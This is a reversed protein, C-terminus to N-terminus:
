TAEPAEAEPPLCPVGPVKSSAGHDSVGSPGSRFRFCTPYLRSPVVAPDPRRANPNSKGGPAGGSTTAFGSGDLKRGTRNSGRDPISKGCPTGRSVIGAILPFAGPIRFGLSGPRSGRNGEGSSESPGTAVARTWRGAVFSKKLDGAKGRDDHRGQSRLVRRRKAHGTESFPLRTSCRISGKHFRGTRPPQVVRGGPSGWWNM